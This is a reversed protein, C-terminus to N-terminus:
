DLELKRFSGEVGFEDTIKSATVRKAEDVHFNKEQNAFFDKWTDSQLTEYWTDCIDKVTMDATGGLDKPFIEKPLVSFVKDFGEHLHLREKHKPKMITKFLALISHGFSPVNVLHIGKMKIAYCQTIHYYIKSIIIPTFQLAQNLTANSFDFIWHDGQSTENFLRYEGMLFGLRAVDLVVMEPSLIRFIMIRHNDKTRMPPVVWYGEKLYKEMNPLLPSRGGLLDPMRGRASFYNDIKEKSQEVSFGRSILHGLIIRDHLQGQPLHPQKEYWERISAIMEDLTKKNINYLKLLVDLDGDKINLMKQVNLSYDFNNYVCMGDGITM